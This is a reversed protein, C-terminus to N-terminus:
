SHFSGRTSIATSSAGSQIRLQVRNPRSKYSMHKQGTGTYSSTGTVATSSGEATVWCKLTGNQKYKVENTATLDKGSTVANSTYTKGPMITTDYGTTVYPTIDTENQQSDAFSQSVGLLSFCTVMLAASKALKKRLM